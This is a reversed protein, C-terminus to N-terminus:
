VCGFPHLAVQASSAKWKVVRLQVCASSYAADGAAAAAAAAMRSMFLRARAAATVITHAFPQRPGAFPQRAGVWGRPAVSPAELAGASM